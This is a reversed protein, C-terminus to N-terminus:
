IKTMSSNAMDKPLRDPLRPTGTSYIPSGKDRIILPRLLRSFTRPTYSISPTPIDLTDDVAIMIDVIRHTEKMSDFLTTTKRAKERYQKLSHINSINTSSELQYTRHIQYQPLYFILEIMTCMQPLLRPPHFKRLWLM